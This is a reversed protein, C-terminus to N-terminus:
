SPVSLFILVLENYLLDKWEPWVSLISSNTNTVASAMKWVYIKGEVLIVILSAELPQAGKPKHGFITYANCVCLFFILVTKCFAQFSSWSVPKLKLRNAWMVLTVLVMQLDVIIGCYHRGSFLLHCHIVLLFVAYGCYLKWTRTNPIWFLWRIM